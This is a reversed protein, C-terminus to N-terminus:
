SAFVQERQVFRCSRRQRFCRVVFPRDRNLGKKTGVHRGLVNVHTLIQDPHQPLIIPQTAAIYIDTEDIHCRVALFDFLCQRKAKLLLTRAIRDGAFDDLLINVHPRHDGTSVVLDNQRENFRVGRDFILQSSGDGSRSSLLRSHFNADQFRVSM